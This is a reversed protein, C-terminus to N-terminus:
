KDIFNRQLTNPQPPASIPHFVTFFAVDSENQPLPDCKEPISCLHLFFCGSYWTCIAIFDLGILNYTQFNVFVDLAIVGTM